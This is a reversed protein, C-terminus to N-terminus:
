GVRSLRAFVSRRCMKRRVEQSDSIPMKGRIRHCDGITAIKATLAMTSLVQGDWLGRLVMLPTPPAKRSSSLREREAEFAARVFAQTEHECEAAIFRSVQKAFEPPNGCYKDSTACGM